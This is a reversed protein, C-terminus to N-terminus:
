GMRGDETQTREESEVGWGAGRRGGEGSRQRRPAGRSTARPRRAVAVSEEVLEVQVCGQVCGSVRVLPLRRADVRPMLLRVDAPSASPTSLPSAPESAGRGVEVVTSASGVAAGEGGGGGRGCAVAAGGGGGAAAPAGAAKAEEKLEEVGEVEVAEGVEVLGRRACLTHLFLFCLNAGVVKRRDRQGWEAATTEDEGSQGRGQRNHPLKDM